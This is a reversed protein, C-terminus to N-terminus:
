DSWKARSNFSCSRPVSNIRPWAAKLPWRRVEPSTLKVQSVQIAQVHTNPSVAVYHWTGQPVTQVLGLCPVQALSLMARLAKGKELCKTEQDATLRVCQKNRHPSAPPVQLQVTVEARWGAQTSMGSQINESLAHFCKNLSICVWTGM